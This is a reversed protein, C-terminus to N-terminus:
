VAVSCRRHAAAKLPSAFTPFSTLFRRFRLLFDLFCRVSASSSSHGTNGASPVPGSSNFATASPPLPPLDLPILLLETLEVSECDLQLSRPFCGPSAASPVVFGSEVRDGSRAWFGGLSLRPKGRSHLRVFARPFLDCSM